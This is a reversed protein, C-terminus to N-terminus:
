QVAQWVYEATASTDQYTNGATAPITMVFTYTHAEGPAWQAGGAGPLATEPMSAFAGAYVTRGLEDAISVTLIASLDGSGTGGHTVSAISLAYTGDLSGTNTVTVTGTASDGPRMGSTSFIAAGAKSNSMTLTGTAVGTGPNSTRATFVAYAGAAVALLSLVALAVFLMAVPDVAGPRVPARPRPLALSPLGVEIPAWTGLGTARLPQEPAFFYSVVALLTLGAVSILLDM